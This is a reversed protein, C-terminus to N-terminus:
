QNKLVIVVANHEKRRQQSRRLINQMLKAFGEAFRVPTPVFPRASFYVADEASNANQVSAFGGVRQVPVLFSESPFPSWAISLDFFFTLLFFIVLSLRGPLCLDYGFPDSVIANQPLLGEMRLM